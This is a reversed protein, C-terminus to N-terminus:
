TKFRKQMPEPLQAIIRQADTQRGAEQYLQALLIKYKPLRPGYEVAWEADAIAEELNGNAWKIRALLHSVKRFNRAEDALKQLLAIYTNQDGTAVAATTHVDLFQDQWRTEPLVQDMLIRASEPQKTQTLTTAHLLASGLFRHDDTDAMAYRNVAQQRQRLGVHCEAMLAHYVPTDPALEVLHQAFRLGIEYNKNQILNQVHRRVIHPDNPMDDVASMSLSLATDTHGRGMLVLSKFSHYSNIVRSSHTGKSFISDLRKVLLDAAGAHTLPRQFNSILSFRWEWAFYVPHFAAKNPTIKEMLETDVPYFDAGRLGSTQDLLDFAIKAQPAYPTHYVSMCLLRTAENMDGSHYAAQSAIADLEAISLPDFLPEKLSDTRTQLVANYKKQQARTKALLPYLFTINNGRQIEQSLLHEARELQDKRQLYPVLHALCQGIEGKSSLDEPTKDIRKYLAEFAIAYDQPRMDKMIDAFEVGGLSAALQSFGSTRPGVIKTARSMAYLELFDRQLSGLVGFDIVDGIRILEPCQKCLWELSPEFDGFLLAKTDTKTKNSKFHQVYFESPVFKNPWPKNKTRYTTTVDGHRVHYALMKNSQTLQSIKAISDRIIPTFSIRDLTNQYSKLAKDQDEGGLTMASHGGDLALVKGARVMEVIEEVPTLRMQALGIASKSLADFTQKSIFHKQIFDASFIDVHQGINTGAAAHVPWYIKVPLNYDHGIRLANMFPLMRAGFLDNRSVLLCGTNQDSM